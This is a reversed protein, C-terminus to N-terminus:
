RANLCGGLIFNIHLSAGREAGDAARLMVAPEGIDIDEFLAGDSGVPGRADPIKGPEDDDMGQQRQMKRNGYHPSRSSECLYTIPHALFPAM